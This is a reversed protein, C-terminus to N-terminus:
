LGYAAKPIVVARLTTSALDITSVTENQFRVSVTNTASVWATVSIGQLDVGHSVMAFDGLAAGTVTVTTTEGAGDVLSAGNFTATGVTAVLALEDDDFMTALDETVFSGAM